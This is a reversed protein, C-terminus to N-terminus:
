EESKEKERFYKKAKMFENQFLNRDYGEPLELKLLFFFSKPIPPLLGASVFLKEVSSSMLLYEREGQCLQEM